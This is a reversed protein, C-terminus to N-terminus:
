GEAITTLLLTTEEKAHITHLMGSHLTMLQDKKLVQSYEVLSFDIAGDLVLVTLMSDLTNDKIEANKHLCTLMITMGAHKYLTISNRDSRKWADEKKLQKSYKELDTFVFPADIVRDGAPRNHTADTYKTQM